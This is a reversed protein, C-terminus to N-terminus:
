RDRLNSEDIYECLSKLSFLLSERSNNDGKFVYRKKNDKVDDDLRNRYYRLDNSKEKLFDYMEKVDYGRRVYIRHSIDISACDVVNGQNDRNLIHVFIESNNNWDLILENATTIDM